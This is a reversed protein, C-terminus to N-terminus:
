ADCPRVTGCSCVIELGDTVVVAGCLGCAFDREFWGVAWEAVSWIPESLIM